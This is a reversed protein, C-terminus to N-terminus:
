LLVFIYGLGYELYFAPVPGSYQYSIGFKASLRIKPFRPDPEIDFSFTRYGISGGNKREQRIHKGV